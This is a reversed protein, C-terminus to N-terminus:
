AKQMLKWLRWKNRLKLGRYCIIKQNYLKKLEGAAYETLEAYDTQGAKKAGRLKNIVVKILMAKYWSLAKREILSGNVFHSHLNKIINIYCDIKYKKFNSNFLSDERYYYFYTKADIAAIKSMKSMAIASFQVDEAYRIDIFRQKGIVSKKYLKNWVSHQINHQSKMMVELPNDLMFWNINEIDWDPIIEHYTEATTQCDGFVMDANSKTIVNYLLELAQPHLYDDSDVFCIYKGTAIDMAANRAGFLGQNQQTIVKVRSDKAAYEALIEASKDTSGDNICIAEFDKFSQALISDLGGRLYPEVNYVPVIISIQPM